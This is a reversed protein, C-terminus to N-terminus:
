WVTGGVAVSPQEVNPQIVPASATASQAPTPLVQGATVSQMPVTAQRVAPTSVNLASLPNDFSPATDIRRAVARMERASLGRSSRNMRVFSVLYDGGTAQSRPDRRQFMGFM